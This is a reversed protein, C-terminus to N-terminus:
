RSPVTIKTWGGTDDPLWLDIPGMNGHPEGWQKASADIRQNAFLLYQTLSQEFLGASTFPPITDDYNSLAGVYREIQAPANEFLAAHRWQRWHSGGGGWGDVACCGNPDGTSEHWRVAQVLSDMLAVTSGACTTNAEYVAMSDCPSMGIFQFTDSAPLRPNVSFGGQSWITPEASVFYIHHNPGSDNVLEPALDDHKMYLAGAQLNEADWGPLFGGINVDFDAFGPPVSPFDDPVAIAQSDGFVTQGYLFADQYRWYLRWITSDPIEVPPLFVEVWQSRPQVTLGAELTHSQGGLEFGASVQGSAVLTGHWVSDGSVVISDLAFGTDPVFQWAVPTPAPFTDGVSSTAILCGGDDGRVTSTDCSLAVFVGEFLLSDEGVMVDGLEVVTDPEFDFVYDEPWVVDGNVTELYYTGGM